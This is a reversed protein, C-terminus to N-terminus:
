RNKSDPVTPKEVVNEEHTKEEITTTSQKEEKEQPIITKSTLISDTPTTKQVEDLSESNIM